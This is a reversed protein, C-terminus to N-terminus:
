GALSQSRLSRGDHLRRQRSVQAPEHKLGASQYCHDSLFALRPLLCYRLNIESTKREKYPLSEAQKIWQYTTEETWHHRTQLHDALDAAGDRTEYECAPCKLEPVAHYAKKALHTFIGSFLMVLATLLLMGLALIGTGGVGLLALLWVVLTGIGAVGIAVFCPMALGYCLKSSARLITALWRRSLVRIRHQEM